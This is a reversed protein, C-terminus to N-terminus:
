RGALLEVAMPAMAEGLLAHGLRTPHCSDYFYTWGADARVIEDGPLTGRNGRAHFRVAEPGDVIPVGTRASVDLAVRRLVDQFCSSHFSDDHETLQGCMDDNQAQLVLLSPVGRRAASKIIREVNVALNVESLWRLFRMERDTLPEDDMFAGGPVIRVEGGKPLVASVLRFLRWRDLLFRRAVSGPSWARFGALRMLDSLDNNGFYLVLLDAELDLVQDAYNAIEDSLAGGVGANIVEVPREPLLATLRRELVSSFAEEALYHTGHVSSEGLTVVRLGADAKDRLFTLHRSNGPLSVVYDQGEIEVEEFLVMPARNPNFAPREVVLPQVGVLALLGELLVFFFPMLGVAGLRFLVPRWNPKWGALLLWIGVLVLAVLGLRSRLRMGVPGSTDVRWTRESPGVELPEVPYLPARSMRPAQLQRGLRELTADPRRAMRAALAERVETSGLQRQVAVELAVRASDASGSEIMLALHLAELRTFLEFTADGSDTQLRVLGSEGQALLDRLWRKATRDAAVRRERDLTPVAGPGGGGALPEVWEFNLREHAAEALFRLDADALRTQVEIIPFSQLGRLLREFIDPDFTSRTIKSNIFAEFMLPILEVDARAVLVRAGDLQGNHSAGVHFLPRLDHSSVQVRPSSLQAIRDERSSPALEGGALEVVLQSVDPAFDDFGNGADASLEGVVSDAGVEAAAPGALCLWLGALLLTCLAQGVSM